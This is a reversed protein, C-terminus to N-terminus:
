VQAMEAAIVELRQGHRKAVEFIHGLFSHRTRKELKCNVVLTDVVRGRSQDEVGEFRVLGSIGSGEFLFAGVFDGYHLPM